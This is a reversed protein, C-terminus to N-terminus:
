AWSEWGRGSIRAAPPVPTPSASSHNLNFASFKQPVPAADQFARGPQQQSHGPNSNLFQDACTLPALRIGRAELRQQLDLWHRNLHNFDGAQMSARAEIGGEHRRLELSLELGGGPKIVVQMSDSNAERLRLAHLTVLDHTRELSSVRHDDTLSALDPSNVAASRVATFEVPPVIVQGHPEHRHAPVAELVAEPFSWHEGPVEKEPAAIKDRQEARKM